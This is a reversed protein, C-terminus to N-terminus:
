RRRRPEARRAGEPDRGVAGVARRDRRRRRRGSHSMLVNEVEGPYINEGGSIIMDKVRDNIFLYGDDDVYGADGTHFWGDADISALTEEPRNWYAQMIQPSRLLIEGVEGTRCRGGTRPDVIRVETGPM